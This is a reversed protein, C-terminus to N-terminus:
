IKVRAMGAVLVVDVTFILQRAAVSDRPNPRISGVPRGLFERTADLEGGHEDNVSQSAPNKPCTQPKADLFESRVYTNTLSPFLM